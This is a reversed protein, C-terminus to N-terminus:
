KVGGEDMIEYIEQACELCVLYGSSTEIADEMTDDWCVSCKWSRANGM